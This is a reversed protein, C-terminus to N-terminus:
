GTSQIVACRKFDAPSTSAGADTPVTWDGSWSWSTATMQQLRDLPARMIM